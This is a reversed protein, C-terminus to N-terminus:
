QCKQSMKIADQYMKKGDIKSTCIKFLLYTCCAVADYVVYVDNQDATAQQMTSVRRYLRCRSTCPHGAGSKISPEENFIKKYLCYRKIKEIKHRVGTKAPVPMPPRVHRRRHGTPCPVHDHDTSCRKAIVNKDATPVDQRVDADADYVHPTCADHDSPSRKYHFHCRQM